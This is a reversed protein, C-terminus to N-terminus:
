KKSDLIFLSADHNMFIRKGTYFTKSQIERYGITNMLEFLERQEFGNHVKDSDIEENKDFDVIILHGGENLVEYLRSLVQETDEIHLLVQAMFIYDARLDSMTKKELDLCLTDVNQIDSDIVKQEIQNIMEQSTDIFLISNFDSLLNLGVLGTGCGFDIASKNKGDIVYEKIANSTIKAIEIRDSTDYRKAIADFIDTNGM